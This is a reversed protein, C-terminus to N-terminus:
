EPHIYTNGVEAFPQSVRHTLLADSSRPNLPLPKTSHPNYGLKFFICLCLCDWGLSQSTQAALIGLLRCLVGVGEALDGPSQPSLCALFPNPVTSHSSMGALTSVLQAKGRGLILTPFLGPPLAFSRPSETLLCCSPSLQSRWPFLCQM